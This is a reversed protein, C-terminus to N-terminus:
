GIAEAAEAVAVGNRLLGGVTVIEEGVGTGAAGSPSACRPRHVIPVTAVIVCTAVIARMAVIAPMAVIACTAVVARRSGRRVTAATVNCRM